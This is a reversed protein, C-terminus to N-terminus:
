SKRFKSLEDKIQEATMVYEDAYCIRDLPITLTAELITDSGVPPISFSTIDKIEKGDVYIKTGAGTSLGEKARKPLVITVGM